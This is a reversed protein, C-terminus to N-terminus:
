TTIKTFLHSKKVCAKKVAIPSQECQLGHSGWQTIKVCHLQLLWGPRVVLTDWQRDNICLFTIHTNQNIPSMENCM